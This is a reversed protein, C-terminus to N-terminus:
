EDGQEELMSKIRRAALAQKRKIPDQENMMPDDPDYSGATELGQQKIDRFIRRFEEHECFKDARFVMWMAEVLDGISMEQRVAELKIERLIWPTIRLTTVKKAM